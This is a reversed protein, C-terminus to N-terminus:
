ERTANLELRLDTTGLPVPAPTRAILEGSAMGLVDEDKDTFLEVVYTDFKTQGSMDISPTAQFEFPLALRSVIQYKADMEVGNEPHYVKIILRDNPGIHQALGPAVTLTGRIMQKEAAVAGTAAFGTALVCWIARTFSHRM